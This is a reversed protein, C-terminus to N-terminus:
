SVVDSTQSDEIECFKEARTNWDFFSFEVNYIPCDPNICVVDDIEGDAPKEGCFPCPLAYDAKIM